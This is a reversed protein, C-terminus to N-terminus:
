AAGLDAPLDSVLALGERKQGSGVFGRLEAAIKDTAGASFFLSRGDKLNVLLGKRWFLPDYFYFRHKVRMWRFLAFPNLRVSEVSAIDALPVHRSYYSISKIVLTRNMIMLKRPFAALCGQAFALMTVTWATFLFYISFIPPTKALGTIRSLQDLLFGLHIVGIAAIALALGEVIKLPPYKVKRIWRIENNMFPKTLTRRLGAFTVIAVLTAWIGLDYRFFLPPIFEEDYARDPTFNRKLIERFRDPTMNEMLKYPSTFAGYDEVNAAAWKALRMMDGSERGMLGYHDQYLRIAETVEDDTMAGMQAHDHFYKKALKLNEDFHESQTEFYIYAYGVGHFSTESENATYTEGKLNRIEKMLRHALYGVYAESVLEDELKINVLKTGLRVYPTRNNLETHRYPEKDVKISDAFASKALGAPLAAWKERIMQMIQNRDFRGTVYLNMNEPHYYAEYHRKVQDLTLKRTSLQEEVLNYRDNFNLGFESQWFDPDQLYRPKILTKIDFGLLEDIPGPRGRELEVTAKEKQVYENNFKPELIMVGFREFLWEGKKYPISAFFSTTRGGTSGNATGGSETILQLYSMEDKLGKDRFLVHELLHSVGYNGKIEANSGVNVDLRLQMLKAQPSPALFVKLGNDMKIYEVSDYPDSSSDSAFASWSLLCLALLIYKHM